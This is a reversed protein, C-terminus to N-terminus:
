PRSDLGRPARGWSTSGCTRFGNWRACCSMSGRTSQWGASSCRGPHPTWPGARCIRGVPNTSASLSSRPRPNSFRRAGAFARPHARSPVVIAAARRLVARALLGYGPRKRGDSHQTVVLPTRRSRLLSAVDALPHPHHLHIIDARRRAAALYGPAIEESGLIGFSFVRTM